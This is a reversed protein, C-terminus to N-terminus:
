ATAGRPVSMTDYSRWINRLPVGGDSPADDASGGLYRARVPSAQVVKNLAKSPGLKLCQSFRALKDVRRGVLEQTPLSATYRGSVLTVGRISCGRPVFDGADRTAIKGLCTEIRRCTESCFASCVALRLDV